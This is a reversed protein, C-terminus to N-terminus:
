ARYDCLLMVNLEGVSLRWWLLGGSRANREIAGDWGTKGARGGVDGSSLARFIGGFQM